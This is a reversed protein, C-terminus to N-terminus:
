RALLKLAARIGQGVDVIEDTLSARVVQESETRKYGLNVLASIVEERLSLPPPPATKTATTNTKSDLPLPSLTPLKERLEMIMRQATRKGVGPILSLQVVDQRAIASSLAEPSLTSLASLALKAGIGNVNNLLTFLSKEASTSFGYLHFADERVVTIILLQTVAELDPLREFTSLPIFVRYGVGGVDLIVESPEKLSVTGRLQAIM